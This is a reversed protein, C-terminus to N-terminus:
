WGTEIYRNAFSNYLWMCCRSICVLEGRCLFSFFGEWGQKACTGTLSSLLRSHLSELYHERLVRFVLGHWAHRYAYTQMRIPVCHPIGLHGCVPHKDISFWNYMYIYIYIYIYVRGPRIHQGPFHTKVACPWHKTLNGTDNTQAFPHRNKKKGWKMLMMMM